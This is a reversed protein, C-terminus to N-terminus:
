NEELNEILVSLMGNLKALSTLNIFTSFEVNETPDEICLEISNRNEVTSAIITLENYKFTFYM